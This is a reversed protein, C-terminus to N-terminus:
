LYIVENDEPAAINLIYDENRKAGIDLLAATAASAALTPLNNHRSLHGLVFRNTGSQLLGKLEAAASVNSLHGRDSMIRMKLEPPYPGNKLMKLDHNSELLILNSGRIANRVEDTIVGLDTCVSIKNGDPLLLFYGGSGLADHSTNFFNVQAGCIDLTSEGIECTQTGAPFANHESLYSLTNASAIVPINLKKLLVSLGKTHDSHSHTILVAKIGCLDIDRQECARKLSAFSSGADVLVGGGSFGIYTSNATSGSFLPCFKAM